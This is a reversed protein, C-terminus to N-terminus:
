LDTITMCYCSLHMWVKAAMEAAAPMDLIELANIRAKALGQVVINAREADNRADKLQAAIQKLPSCM